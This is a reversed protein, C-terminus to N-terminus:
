ILSGAAADVFLCSHPHKRLLTAPLSVDIPEQLTRRIIEAKASGNALLWVEKSALLQKLGVAVGWTPLKSHTLYNASGQVTTPHM